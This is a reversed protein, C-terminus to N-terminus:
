QHGYRSREEFSKCEVLVLPSVKYMAMEECHNGISGISIALAM